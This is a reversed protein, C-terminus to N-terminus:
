QGIFKFSEQQRNRAEEQWENKKKSKVDKSYPFCKSETSHSKNETKFCLKERGGM